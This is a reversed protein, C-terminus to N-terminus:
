KFIVQNKDIEYQVGNTFAITKVIQELPTQPPYSAIFHIGTLVNNQMVVEKGFQQQIRFAIEDRGAHDFVINGKRWSAALDGDTIGTTLTNNKRNFVAKRNPTIQVARGNEDSVKVKGTRVSIVQENLGPYAKVNFSTGLVQTQMGDPSHIIFPKEPNKAVNFFAEGELWVERNNKNFAGAKYSLRGGGNLYVKTGDPLQQTKLERDATQLILEPKVSWSLYQQRFSSETRLGWYSFGILLFFIAATAYRSHPIIPYSKKGQKIQPLGLQKLVNGRIICDAKDIQAPSLNGAEKGLVNGAIADLQEEVNKNEPSFFKGEFYIELTHTMWYFSSWYKKNEAKLEVPKRKKM